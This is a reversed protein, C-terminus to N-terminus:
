HQRSHKGERSEDRETRSGCRVVGTFSPSFHCFFGIKKERKESEQETAALALPAGEAAHPTVMAEMVPM